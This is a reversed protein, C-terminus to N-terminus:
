LSYVGIPTVNPNLFEVGSIGKEECCKRFDDGVIVQLSKSCLFIEIDPLNRFVLRRAGWPHMSFKSKEVDLIDLKPPLIHVGSYDVADSEDKMAIRFNEYPINCENFCNVLNRSAITFYHETRMYDIKPNGSDIELQMWVSKEYPFPQSPSRVGTDPIGRRNRISGDIYRAYIAQDGIFYEKRRFIWPIKM